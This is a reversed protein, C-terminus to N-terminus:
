RANRFDPPRKELFARVGARGVPDTSEAILRAEGDLEGLV